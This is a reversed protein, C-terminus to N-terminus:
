LDLKSDWLVGYRCLITLRGNNQLSLKTEIDDDIIGIKTTWVISPSTEGIKKAEIILNGNPLFSYVPNRYISGNFLTKAWAMSNNFNDYCYFGNPLLRISYRCNPSRIEQLTLNTVEGPKLFSKYPYWKTISEKDIQSLTSQEYVAQGNTTISAPIYYHMISLPDYESFDTTNERNIIFRDVEDKTFQLSYYQYTKPFDWQINAAPNTTEHFLGLAHGFEHLITRKNTDENAAALPGLRMTQINQGTYAAETGLRSWAGAQNNPGFLNFGIKIDAYENIDVYEFKLNAYITWENAFKKVKEQQETNGDLFKIKITQGTKWKWSTIAANPKSKTNNSIQLLDFTCITNNEDKELNKKQSKQEDSECSMLLIILTFLLLNIKKM